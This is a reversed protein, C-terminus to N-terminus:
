RGIAPLKASNTPQASSWMPVRSVAATVIM